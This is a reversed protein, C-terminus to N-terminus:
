KLVTGVDIETENKDNLVGEMDIFTENDEDFEAFDVDYFELVTEVTLPKLIFNVDFVFAKAYVADSVDSAEFYVRSESFSTETIVKCIQGSSKYFAIFINAKDSLSEELAFSGYGMDDSLIYYNLREFGNETVQYLANESHDKSFLLVKENKPITHESGNVLKTQENNVVFGIYASDEFTIVNDGSKLAFNIGEALVAVDNEAFATCSLMSVFIIFCIAIYKLSSKM